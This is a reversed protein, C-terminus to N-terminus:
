SAATRVQQKTDDRGLWHGLFGPVWADVLHDYQEAKAVQEDPQQAGREKLKDSAERMWIEIIERTCEPHFQVGYAHKGVRYFQNPFHGTAGTALLEGGCPMDFGEGHWHYVHRLDGLLEDGAATPAIECFGIEHWGEDHPKVKAGLVRALMQAGLCVGLFPVDAAMVKDIWRLEQAIFDLKDDDNASMPGGFIVTGAVDGFDAPLTDGTPLCCRVEEYGMARINDGIRGTRSYEGHVVCVIKSRM